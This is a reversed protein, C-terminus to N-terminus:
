ALRVDEDLRSGCAAVLLAALVVVAPRRVLM